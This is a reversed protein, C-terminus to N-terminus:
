YLFAPFMLVIIPVTFNESSKDVKKRNATLTCYGTLLVSPSVIISRSDFQLHRSSSPRFMKSVFSVSYGAM